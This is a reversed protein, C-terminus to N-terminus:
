MLIIMIMIILIIIILIIENNICVNINCMIIVNNVNNINCMIKMIIIKM